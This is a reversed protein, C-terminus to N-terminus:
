FAEIRDAAVPKSNFYKEHFWPSKEPNKIYGNKVKGTVM